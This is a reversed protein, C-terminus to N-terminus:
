DRAQGFFAPFYDDAYTGWTLWGAALDLEAAPADPTIGAACLAFDFGRLRHEDWLGPGPRGPVPAYMGMRRSWAACRERAAAPDLHPNLRLPYPLVIPPLRTPGARQSPVFRNNSFRDGGLARPSLSLRAGSTGIGAPGGLVPGAARASKNMYRSSRLHWEHGG